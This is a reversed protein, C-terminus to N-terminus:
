GRKWPPKRASIGTKGANNATTTVLHEAFPDANDEYLKEIEDFVDDNVTNAVPYNGGFKSPVVALVAAVDDGIDEKLLVPTIGKGTVTVSKHFEGQHEGDLVLVHVTMVDYPPQDKQKSPRQGDHSVIRMLVTSDALEMFLDNAGTGSQARKLPM